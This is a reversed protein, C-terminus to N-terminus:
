EGGGPAAPDAAVRETAAAPFRTLAVLVAWALVFLGIGIYPAQAAQTEHAYFATREAASM